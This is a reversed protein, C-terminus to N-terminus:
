VSRKEERRRSIILLVMCAMFGVACLPGATKVAKVIYKGSLLSPAKYQLNRVSLTRQNVEQQTYLDLMKAFNAVIVSRREELAQIQKEASATLRRREEKTLEVSLDATEESGDATRATEQAANKEKNGSNTIDALMDQYKAISANAAAIGDALTKRKEVLQNYTVSTNGSVKQLAESTSVYVISDREYFGILAEIRELEEKDSELQRNLTRLEMEYQMQLRDLNKSLANLTIAANLREIDANLNELQVPIDSFGKKEVRFDPALEAMEQAYSSLQATSESIVALQQTYDYESLNAIVNMEELSSSSTRAFCDRYAALISNLLGKLQDSSIGSDFDNYLTVDYITAHYDTVPAQQDGAANLLSTYKTMQNVINEPYVATVTLNERIQDVTYANSLSSAELATSIVEDLTLNNVDFPYGNPGKGEGAGDFSFQLTATAYTRNDEGKFQVAALILGAIGCVILVLLTIRLWHTKRSTSM